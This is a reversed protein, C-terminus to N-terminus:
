RPLSFPPLQANSNERKPASIQLEHDGISPPINGRGRIGEKRMQICQRFDNKLGGRGGGV